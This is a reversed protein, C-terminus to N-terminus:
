QTITLRFRGNWFLTLNEPSSGFETRSAPAPYRGRILRVTKIALM